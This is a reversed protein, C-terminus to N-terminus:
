KTVQKPRWARKYNQSFLDAEEESQFPLFEKNKLAHTYADKDSLQKLQMTTPDFIVTPYVAPQGNIHDWAMYHTRTEDGQQLTPYLEPRAIRDIFNLHTNKGVISDVWSDLEPNAEYQSFGEFASRPLLDMGGSM